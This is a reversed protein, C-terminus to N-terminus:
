REAQGRVEGIDGLKAIADDEDGARGSRALGGGQGHEEVADIALLVIVDDGDFIGDLEQVVVFAGGNVLAFQMAVRGAESVGQAGGQPLRRFDNQDALHAVAFGDLDDEFGGFGAM